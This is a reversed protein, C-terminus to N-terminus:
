GEWHKLKMMQLMHVTIVSEGGLRICWFGSSHTSITTLITTLSITEMISWSPYLDFIDKRTPLKPRVRIFIGCRDRKKKFFIISLMSRHHMSNEGFMFLTTQTVTDVNWYNSQFSPLQGELCFNPVHRWDKKHRIPLCLGRARGSSVGTSPESESPTNHPDQNPPAERRIICFDGPSWCFSNRLEQHSPWTDRTPPM